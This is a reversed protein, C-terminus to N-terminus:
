SKKPPPNREADITVRDNAEMYMLSGNYYGTYESEEDGSEISNDFVFEEVYGVPINPQTDGEVLRIWYKHGLIYDFEVILRRGSEMTLVYDVFSPNSTGDIHDSDGIRLCFTDGTSYQLESFLDIVLTEKVTELTLEGYPVVTIRVVLTGRNSDGYSYNGNVFEMTLYTTGSHINFPDIKIVGKVIENSGSAGHLDSDTVPDFTIATDPIVGQNSSSITENVIIMGQKDAFTINLDRTYWDYTGDGDETITYLNDDDFWVFNTSLVEQIQSTQVSITVNEAPMTFSFTGNYNEECAINNAFVNELVLENNLITITLTIEQGAEANERDSEITYDTSTPLTITYTTPLQKDGCSTLMIGSVLFVACLCITMMFKKMYSRRMYIIIDCMAM